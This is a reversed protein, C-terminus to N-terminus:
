SALLSAVNLVKVFAFKDAGQVKLLIIDPSCVSPFEPIATGNCTAVAGDGFPLPVNKASQIAKMLNAATPDGTFGKLMRAVAVVPQYGQRLLISQPDATPDQQRLLTQFTQDDTGTGGLDMPSLIYANQLLSAPVAGLVSSDACGGPLFIPTTVGLAAAAKLATTCTTADGTFVIADPHGSMAVSMQPTADPTGAPLYTLTYQVGAKAFAPGAFQMLQTIGPDQLSIIAIKKWGHGKAYKAVGALPGDVVTTLTFVGPTDLDAAGSENPLVQPIGAKALIPTAATDADVGFIVLPVKDDVFENACATSSATSGDTYCKVLQVPHGGFGDLESDVYGVAVEAGQTLQPLSIVSGGQLNLYGVKIPTGTAKQGSSQAAVPSPDASNSSGATTSSGSTASGSTASGCGAAVAPLCALAAISLTRRFSMM